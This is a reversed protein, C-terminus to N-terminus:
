LDLTILSSLCAYNNGPVHAASNLGKMMLTTEDLWHHFFFRKGGLSPLSIPRIDHIKFEFM